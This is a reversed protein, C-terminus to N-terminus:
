EPLLNLAQVVESLKVHDLNLQLIKKYNVKIQLEDLLELIMYDTITYEDTIPIVKGLPYLKGPENDIMESLNFLGVGEVMIILDNYNSFELVSALKVESGFPHLNKAAYPIGFTKDTDQIDKILQKYRPEFIRLPVREGPLVVLKLPFQPINKITADM